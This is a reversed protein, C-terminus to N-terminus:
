IEMTVVNWRYASYHSYERYGYTALRNLRKIWDLECILYDYNIKYHRLCRCDINSM